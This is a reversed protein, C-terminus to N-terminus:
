FTYSNKGPDGKKNKWAWAPFQGLYGWKSNSSPRVFGASLFELKIVNAVIVIIIIINNYCYQPMSLVM